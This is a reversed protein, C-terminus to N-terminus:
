TCLTQKKLLCNKVPANILDRTMKQGIDFFYMYFKSMPKFIAFIIAKM